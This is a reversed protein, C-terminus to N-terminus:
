GRAPRPTPSGRPPRPSRTPSGVSRRRRDVLRAAHLRDVELDRLLVDLANSFSAFAPLVSITGASRDFMDVSIADAICVTRLWPPGVSATTARGNRQDDDGADPDIAAARGAGQEIGVTAQGSGRRHVEFRHLRDVRLGRRDVRDVADRRDVERRVQVAVGVRARGDREREAVRRFAVPEREDDAVVDRSRRDGAAEVGPRSKKASGSASLRRM